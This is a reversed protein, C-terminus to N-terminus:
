GYLEELRHEIFEEVDTIKYQTAERMINAYTRQDINITIEM